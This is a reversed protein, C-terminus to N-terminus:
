QDFIAFIWISSRLSCVFSHAHSMLITKKTQRPFFDAFSLLSFFTLSISTNVTPYYYIPWMQKQSCQPIGIAFWFGPVQANAKGDFGTFIPSWPELDVHFFQKISTCESPFVSAVIYVKKSIFCEYIFFILLMKIIMGQNSENADACRLDVLIENPECCKNVRVSGNNYDSRFSRCNRCLM